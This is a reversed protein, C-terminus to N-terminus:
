AWRVLLRADGARDASDCGAPVTLVHTLTWPGAERRHTGRQQGHAPVEFHAVDELRDDGRGALQEVRLVGGEADGVVVAAEGLEHDVADAVGLPLGDARERALVADEGRHQVLRLGLAQGVDAFVGAELAPGRGVGVHGVEEAQGDAVVVLDDAGQEERVLVAGLLVATAAEGLLVLLQEGDEGLVRGDGEGVGAEVLAAALQGDRLFAGAEGVLQVVRDGLLEEGEAEGCLGGGGKHVAVGGTGLAFELLHGHEGGLGGVFEPCRDDLQAGCGQVLVPQDGGQAGLDLDEVAGVGRADGEGAATEARQGRGLLLGHEADGLLGQVVRQAVGARLM